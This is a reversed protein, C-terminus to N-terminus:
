DFAYSSLPIKQAFSPDITEHGEQLCHRSDGLHSQNIESTLFSISGMRFCSTSAALYYCAELFTLYIQPCNYQIFANNAQAQEDGCSFM